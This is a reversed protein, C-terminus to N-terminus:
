LVRKLSVFPIPYLTKITKGQSASSWKHAPCVCWQLLCSANLMHLMQSEDVSIPRQWSHLSIINSLKCKIFHSKRKFENAQLSNLYINNKYRHSESNICECVKCNAHSAKQVDVQLMRFRETCLAVRNLHTAYRLNCVSLLTQCM